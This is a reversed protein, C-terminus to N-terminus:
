WPIGRQCIYKKEGTSAAHISLWGNGAYVLDDTDCWIHVNSMAYFERLASTQLSEKEPVVTYYPIQREQCYIIADQMRQTYVPVLFIFAKYLDRIVDIYGMQYHAYSHRDVWSGGM